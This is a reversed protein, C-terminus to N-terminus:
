AYSGMGWSDCICVFFHVTARFSGRVSTMTPVRCVHFLGTEKGNSNKFTKKIIYVIEEDSMQQSFSEPASHSVASENQTFLIM